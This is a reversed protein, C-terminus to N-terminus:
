ARPPPLDPPLSPGPPAPLLEPHLSAVAPPPAPIGGPSPPLHHGLRPTPVRVREDGEDVAEAAKLLADVVGLAHPADHTHRSDAGHPVAGPGAEGVGATGVVGVTRQLAHDVEHLLDAAVPVMLPALYTVVLLARLAWERVRGRRIEPGAPPRPRPRFHVVAPTPFRM